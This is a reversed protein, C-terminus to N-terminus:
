SRLTLNTLPPLHRGGGQLFKAKWVLKLRFKDNLKRMKGEFNIGYVGFVLPILLWPPTPIPRWKHKSTIKIPKSNIFTYYERFHRNM